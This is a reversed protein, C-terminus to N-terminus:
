YTHDKGAPVLMEVVLGPGETANYINLSGGINQLISVVMPIGLGFGEKEGTFRIEAQKYPEIIAARQEVSLNLGDDIVKISITEEDIKSITLNIQPDHQPHFKKSNEFLEMLILEFSVKSLVISRSHVVAAIRVVAPKLGLEKSIEQAMASIQVLKLNEGRAAAASAQLYNLIDQIDTRLREASVLALQALENIESRPMDHASANLLEVVGYVGNLPTNLKHSILYHFKKFDQDSNVAASVNRLCVVSVPDDEPGPFIDVELWFARSSSTEPNMLFRQQKSPERWNSWLYSPYRTFQRETLELFNVQNSLEQDVTLGLYSRATPNAYLIHDQKDLLLYGESAQEVAWKFQAREKQLNKYRNLRLITNVRAKLEIFDVPKSLFDDAGAEIGHIRSPRDDLATVIVIPVERLDPNERLMRCVNFGDIEPMMVDLLILDPQLALAKEYAEQGDEAYHISFGQGGLMLEMTQRVAPNDDAVLIVPYSRFEVM